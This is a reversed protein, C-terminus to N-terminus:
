YNHLILPLWLHCMNLWAIYNVEAQWFVPLRDYPNPLTDSTVYVYGINCAVAWNIHSKMTDTDSVTHVLMACREAGCDACGDPCQGPLKSSYDEFIVATDCATIIDCVSIPTGPNLFVKNLNPRSKVYKCLEETPSFPVTNTVQDLFIGDIDFCQDYLDVDNTVSISPRAGYDTDVYGLITVGGNRLDSIGRQYDINPCGGPGNSSNVIATISVQSTATVVDDWTYITPSYWTPYSYLPILMQLGACAPTTPKPPWDEAVYPPGRFASPTFTPNTVARTSALAVLTGALLFLACTTTVGAWAVAGKISTEKSSMMM